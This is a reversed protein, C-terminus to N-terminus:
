ANKLFYTIIAEAEILEEPMKKLNEMIERKQYGLKSLADVIDNETSQDLKKYMRELSIDIDIKEKLELILRKATKKGIGPIKCIFAEDESIIAGKLNDIPVSLLELAVKPGVGNISLLKKFLELEQYTGFGYLDSCDEKIQHHIFFEVEQTEECESILITGLHVFYGINGTDLIVGKTTKKLINGKLYAIM